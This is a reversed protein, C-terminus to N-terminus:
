LSAQIAVGRRKRPPWAGLDGNESRENEFQMRDAMSRLPFPPRPPVGLFPLTAEHVGDNYGPKVKGRVSPTQIYVGLDWHWCQIM